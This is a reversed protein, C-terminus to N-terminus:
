KDGGPFLKRHIYSFADDLSVTLNMLFEPSPTKDGIGLPPDLPVAGLIDLHAKGNITFRAGGGYSRIQRHEFPGVGLDWLNVEDFFAFPEFNFKHKVDFPGVRLEASAAAARDGLAAGPQYGRGITLNGASYQDPIALPRDAYQGDMRFDLRLYDVTATEAELNARLILAQPDADARSLDTDGRHSAGAFNLNQHIDGSLDIRGWRGRHEAAMNIDLDRLKDNTLNVSSFVDTKQNSGELAVDVAWTENPGTPLPQSIDFRLSAVNQAIALAALDGQPNAQGWLGSVNLATGLSNVRLSASGRVLVQRGTPLSTYVQVSEQDGYATDGFHDIGFLAGWPGVPDAYLDNVNAYTRWESHQANVVLDMGGPESGRRLTGSVELGPVAKAVNYAAQVDAASLPSKNVLPSLALTAQRRAARNSGLVTLDSIRGEVVDYHVVGDNVQQVRLIVAVFPYGADAYIKEAARGIGRLDSLTVPKGAFGAWAPRLAADPVAKAGDFEVGQLVLRVQTDRPGAPAGGVPASLPPPSPAPQSPLARTPDNPALPAGPAQASAVTALAAFCLGLAASATNPARV